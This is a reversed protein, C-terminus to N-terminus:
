SSDPVPDAKALCEDCVVENSFTTIPEFVKIREAVRVIQWGEPLAEQPTARESWVGGHTGCRDCTARYTHLETIPM